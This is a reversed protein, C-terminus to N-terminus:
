RVEGEEYRLLKHDGRDEVVVFGIRAYWGLAPNDSLVKCTISQRYHEGIARCLSHMAQGMNTRDSATRAGRMINYLDVTNEGELLRCALVGVTVWGKEALEEVMYIHDHPRERYGAFWAAQQEVTIDAKHFYFRKSLNKWVRLNERDELEALRLRFASGAPGAITAPLTKM